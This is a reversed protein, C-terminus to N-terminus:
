RVDLRWFYSADGADDAFVVHVELTWAGRAPAGFRPIGSGEDLATAGAPGSSDTPVIRATWADVDAAPRLRVTL